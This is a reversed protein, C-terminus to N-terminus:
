KRRCIWAGFNLNRWFPTVATFGAEDLMYILHSETVPRMITELAREKGVIQELSFAQSKFAYYAMDIIHQIQGSEAYTKEAIIFAGEPPLNQAIRKLLKPRKTFPVFQMTFLMTALSVNRFYSEDVAEFRQAIHTLGYRDISESFNREPEIAIYDTNSVGELNNKINALLSGTSAGIDIVQTHPAVFYRALRVVLEHLDCYGPISLDIHEEFHDAIDHFSFDAGNFDRRLPKKLRKKEPNRVIQIIDEPEETADSYEGTLHPPRELEKTASPIQNPKGDPFDDDTIIGAFPNEGPKLRAEEPPAFTLQVDTEEIEVGMAEVAERETEPKKNM